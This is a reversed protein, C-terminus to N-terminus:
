RCTLREEPGWAVGRVAGAADIIGARSSFAVPSCVHAPFSPDLAGARQLLEAVLETCYVGRLRAGAGDYMPGGVAALARALPRSWASAGIGMMVLPQGASVLPDFPQHTAWDDVASALAAADVQGRVLPRRVVRGGYERVYEGVCVVRTGGLPREGTRVDRLQREDKKRTLHTDVVCPGYTPHVWVVGAHVCFNRVLPVADLAWAAHQTLILDGTRWTAADVDVAPMTAMDAFCAHAQVVSALVTVLLTLIVVGLAVAAGVAAGRVLKAATGPTM